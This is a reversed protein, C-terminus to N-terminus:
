SEVLKWPIGNAEALDLMNKTGRSESIAAHIGIVEHPYLSAMVVNRQPGAGRGRTDWLAVVEVCHVNEEKCIEYVLTDIGPAGGEIVLLRTVGHEEILKRIERRVIRKYHPKRNRDGCILVKYLKILQPVNAWEEHFKVPPQM